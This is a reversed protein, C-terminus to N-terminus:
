REECPFISKIVIAPNGAIIVRGLPFSKTVVSGAGIVTDPGLIVGPLIIANMGIWCREGIEITKATLYKNLQVPDHNSTILGVNPAIYSGRGLKIFGKFNQFYTGGAQFNNLDDPHFHLNKFNSINVTLAVPFPFPRGLRLINRQWIAKLCWLYGAYGNEFHRGQLYKRDFFFSLLFLILPRFIIIILKLFSKM